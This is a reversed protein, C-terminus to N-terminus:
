PMFFGYFRAARDVASVYARTEPFVEEGAIFRRANTEGANYAYLAATKDGFKNILSALYYCGCDLSTRADFSDANKMGLADACEAFTQPMLQMLGKAGASSVANEDFRSEAWVVARVFAPDLDFRRAADNIERSYKNPFYACVAVVFCTFLVTM